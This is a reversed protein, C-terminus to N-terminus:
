LSSLSHRKQNELVPRNVLEVNRPYLPCRLVRADPALAQLQEAGSSGPFQVQERSSGAVFPNTVDILIRGDLDGLVILTEWAAAWPVALLVADAGEIADRYGGGFAAHIEIARRWGREADRSGVRVEHGARVLQAGLASGMKGTGIVAIRM